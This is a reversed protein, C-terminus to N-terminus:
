WCCALEMKIKVQSHEEKSTLVLLGLVMNNDNVIPDRVDLM